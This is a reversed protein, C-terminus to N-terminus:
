GVAYSPSVRQLRLVDTLNRMKASRYAIYYLSVGALLVVASVGGVVILWRRVIQRRQVAFQEEFWDVDIGTHYSGVTKGEVEIPVQVDFARRGDALATSKTEFVDEAVEPREQSYWNRSIRRGQLTPDSHMLVMGTSDAIAAYLRGGELPIMRRWFQRIWPDHRVSALDMSESQQELGREIRGVTRVAHSRMTAIENRLATERAIHVDRYAGWVGLLVVLSLAVCICAYAALSLRSITRGEGPTMFRHRGPLHITRNPRRAFEM